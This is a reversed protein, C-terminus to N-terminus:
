VDGRCEQAVGQSEPLAIRIMSRLEPVCSGCQVGCGLKTQLAELCQAPTLVSSLAGGHRGPSAAKSALLTISDEIAQRRIGACSCVAPGASVRGSPAKDGPMLLAGRMASVDTQLRLIEALWHGSSVDGQLMLWVLRGQDIALTRASKRPADEYRVLPLGAVQFSSRLAESLSQVLEASLAQHHAVRLMVGEREGEAFPVAVAVDLSACLALLQRRVAVGEGPRTWGMSFLRGPLAVADIRAASYKLEPQKSDADVAPQALANIGLAKNGGLFEPGWHMAVFAQGPRLSDAPQVQLLQAGRRTRVRVWDGAKLHRRAVDDGNMELEPWPSHNFLKGLTGTRSMGHWQDRLRGSMLGFPFHADAEEATPQWHTVRLQARGGERAFVGDEYLRAKGDAAGAPMPWQRPRDLLDWSLGGIDMDTGVTSDRHELWLDQASTYDFHWNTGLRRRSTAPLRKELRQAFDVAIAWDHRAQGWPQVAARVRTIRRESNTVTGEKEGWTSAPLVLDAHAATATGQFADQVVVFEAKELARAVKAADPMSHAPNTCAIWVAKIEGSELADFMAVASKGPQSSISEVGWFSAVEARHQAKGLDRHAPLLNAMGGVERGGMANPQGTLSMPGAGARGIQGTLLHLNILAANKASGSSSQNLGQCYMSLTAKSQAFWKAAQVIAEATVGCIRAAWDPTCDRVSEVLTDLGETHAAVYARHTWAEMFLQHIMANFLAVDTGPLIQLHLDALAATETRRPDVVIMKMAPNNLRAAEIRRFLVPHAWATNSGAIFLCDTAEIDEYSCPPADAGLTQKYGAVASSMCLRSNSDINNTGILGKALKNFAYYDETLLQGSVYFAVADPGHEAIISAFREVAGDLADDWTTQELVGAETRRLPVSLRSQQQRLPEATLHLTSGKSCLRGFNAPHEPDGRVSVIQERAADTVIIVGCGVGCYPCTSRTELLTEARTEVRIEPLSAM